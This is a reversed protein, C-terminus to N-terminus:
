MEDNSLQEEIKAIFRQLRKDKVLRRGFRSVATGASAYDIGGAWEALQKLKLRGRRRGVWLAADRGWDGHRQSFEAWSEGKVSAVAEVIQEWSVAQRVGRLSAQERPNARTRQLLRDAFEQSGLVVGGILRAWPGEPLGERVAQECYARMAAQQQKSTRGGCLCGLVDVTLWSPSKSYGAYAPYSSWKWQRLVKLRQRVVEATPAASLGHKAAARERKGLKLAQVRVPNLHLYRGVEQFNADDEILFASFRGQFLHGQRQHRRNFWVSYSVNLWQGTRSLNAEPTQLLLHFHNTMLVFAHLLTGFRDPLEALLELFHERDRDDRFIMRRENNGRATLHYRGDPIEIRLPRAM